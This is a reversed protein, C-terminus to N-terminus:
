FYKNKYDFVIATTSVFQKLINIGVSICIPFFLRSLLNYILCVIFLSFNIGTTLFLGYFSQPFSINHLVFTDWMILYFESHM